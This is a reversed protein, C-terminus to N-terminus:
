IIALIFPFTLSESIHSLKVVKNIHGQGTLITMLHISMLHDQSPLYEKIAKICKKLMIMM